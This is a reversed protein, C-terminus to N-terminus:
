KSGVKAISFPMNESNYSYLKQVMKRAMEVRQTGRVKMMLSHTVKIIGHWMYRCGQPYMIAIAAM